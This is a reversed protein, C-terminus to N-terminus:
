ILLGQMIENTLIAYDAQTEAGREQWEDTLKHRVAIGRMRKAIWEKPYGKKEYIEKTRQMALEPDEIEDIREKGVRALWRKFPEAKKSPVSQIIRFMTETNASDTNRMKGDPAPIKLQIINEYLQYYGEEKLKRKLDSWYRRPIASDTLIEVVDVVSFFWINNVLVRRVRKGQFLSLKSTKEFNKSKKPM